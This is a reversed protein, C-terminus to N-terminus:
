FHRSTGAFGKAGMRQIIEFFPQDIKFQYHINAIFVMKMLM